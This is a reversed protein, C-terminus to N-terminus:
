CPAIPQLCFQVPDVFALLYKPEGTWTALNISTNGATPRSAIQLYDPFEASLRALVFHSYSSPKLIQTVNAFFGSVYTKKSCGSGAIWFGAAEDADLCDGCTMILDPAVLVAMALAKNDANFLRGVASFPLITSDEVCSVAVTKIVLPNSFKQLLQRRALPLSLGAAKTQARPPLLAQSGTPLRLAKAMTPTSLQVAAKAPTAAFVAAVLMLVLRSVMQM